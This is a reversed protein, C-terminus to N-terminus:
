IVRNYNDSSIARKREQLSDRATRQSPSRGSSPLLAGRPVRTPLDRRTANVDLRSISSKQAYLDYRQASSRRAVSVAEM